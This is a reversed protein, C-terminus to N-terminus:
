KKDPRAKSKLDMLPKYKEMLQPQIEKHAEYEITGPINYEEEYADDMSKGTLMKGGVRGIIAANGALNKLSIDKFQKGHSLEAMVPQFNRGNLGFSSLPIYMTNSLEDYHARIRNNAPASVGMLSPIETKWRINPNGCEEEIQWVLKYVQEKKDEPVDMTEMSYFENFTDETMGIPVGKKANNLSDLQKLSLGEFDPLDTIGVKKYVDKEFEKYNSFAEEYSIKEQGALVNLIHNTEQDPHQFHEKGQSDKTKILDKHHEDSNIKLASVGLILAASICGSVKLFRKTLKNIKTRAKEVKYLQEKARTRSAIFELERDLAEIMEANKLISAEINGQGYDQTRPREFEQTHGKNAGFRENM